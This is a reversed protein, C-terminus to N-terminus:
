KYHTIEFGDYDCKTCTYCKVKGFIIWGLLKQKNTRHSRHLDQGCEPCMDLRNFRKIIRVRIQKLIMILAMIILIIGILDSGEIRNIINAGISLIGIILDRFFFIIKQLITFLERKIKMKELLLFIGTGLLVIVIIEYNYEQIFSSKTQRKRSRM